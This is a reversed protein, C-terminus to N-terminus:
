GVPGLNTQEMREGNTAQQEGHHLCLIVSSVALSAAFIEGAYRRWSLAAPM